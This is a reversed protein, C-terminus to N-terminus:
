YTIVHCLRVFQEAPHDLLLAAPKVRPGPRRVRQQPLQVFGNHREVKRARGREGIGIQLRAGVTLSVLGRDRESRAPELVVRVVLLDRNGSELFVGVIRGMQAISQTEGGRPQECTPYFHRALAITKGTELLVPDVVSRSHFFQHDAPDVSLTRLISRSQVPTRQNVHHLPSVTKLEHVQRCANLSPFIFASERRTLAPEATPTQEIIAIVHLRASPWAVGSVIGTGSGSLKTSSTVPRPRIIRRACRRLPRALVRSFYRALQM